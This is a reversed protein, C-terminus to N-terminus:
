RRTSQSYPFINYEVAPGLRFALDYNSFTSSETDQQLGVGWHNGVSRVLLGEAGYFETVSEITTTDNIEFQSEFYSGRLRIGIKWAETVRSVSLSGNANAFQQQQEASLSGGAGVRFVWHNWPDRVESVAADAGLPPAGSDAVAPRSAPAYLVVM